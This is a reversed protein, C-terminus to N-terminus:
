PRFIRADWGEEDTPSQTTTEEPQEGIPYPTEMEALWQQLLTADAIEVEGNADVDAGLQSIGDGLPMEAIFTQICTVDNINVNGDLDADGLIYGASVRDPAHGAFVTVTGAIMLVAACILVAKIIRLKCTM